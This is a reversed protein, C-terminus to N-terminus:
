NDAQYFIQVQYNTSKSLSLVTSHNPYMCADHHTYHDKNFNLILKDTNKQILLAVFLTSIYIHM